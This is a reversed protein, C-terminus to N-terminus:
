RRVVGRRTAALVAVGRKYPDNGAVDDPHRPGSKRRVHKPRPVKIPKKLQQGSASISAVEVNLALLEHEM